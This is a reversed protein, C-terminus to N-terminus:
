EGFRDFRGEQELKMVIADEEATRKVIEHKKWFLSDYGVADISRRLNAQDSLEVTPLSELEGVNFLMSWYSVNRDEHKAKMNATLSHVETFGNKQTFVITFSFDRHELSAKGSRSRVKVLVNEVQGVFGQVKLTKADVYLKGVVIPKAYSSNGNSSAGGLIPLLSSFSPAGKLRNHEEYGEKSSFNFILIEGTEKTGQWDLDIQYNSNYYRRSPKDVLPTILDKWYTTEYVHPGIQSSLFFNPFTYFPHLVNIDELKGYRGTLLKFNHANGCCGASFFAEVVENNIKDNSTLQRYFYNSNHWFFQQQEEIFQNSIKHLLSYVNFKRPKVVVESLEIDIPQLAIIGNANAAKINLTQYGIYSFRLIDSPNAEVAFNGDRNSLTGNGNSNYISAMPLSEHTKSDVVRGTFTQQQAHIGNSILIVMSLMLMRIMSRRKGNM